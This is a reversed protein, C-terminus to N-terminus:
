IVAVHWRTHVTCDYKGAPSHTCKYLASDHLVGLTSSARTDHLCICKLYIGLVTQAARQIGSLIRCLTGPWRALLRSHAGWRIITRRLWM